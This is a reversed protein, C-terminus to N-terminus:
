KKNLIIRKKEYAWKLGALLSSWTPVTDDGGKKYIAEERFDDDNLILASITPYFSGYVLETDVPPIPLDKILDIKKQKEISNKVGEKIIEFSDFFNKDINKYKKGFNKNFRDILFNVANTDSFVNPCRDSYYM